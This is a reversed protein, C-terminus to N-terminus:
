KKEGESALAYLSETTGAKVLVRRDPLAFLPVPATSPSAVSEGKPSLRVTQQEETGWWYGAGLRGSGSPTGVATHAATDILVRNVLVLGSAGDVVASNAALSDATFTKVLSAKGLAPFAPFVALVSKRVASASRKSPEPTAWVTVLSGDAAPYVASLKAAGKPAPLTVPAPFTVSDDTIYWLRGTSIEVALLVGRDTGVAVAGAPIRRLELRGQTLVMARQDPLAFFPERGTDTATRVTTSGAEYVAGPVGDLGFVKIKSGDTVVIRQEGDVAMVRLASVSGELATSWVRAGTRADLADLHGGSVTIVQNGDPSLVPTTRAAPVTWSAFTGWGAPAYVPLQGAPAPAAVQVGQSAPAFWGARQAGLVGGTVAVSFVVFVATMTRKGKRTKAWARGKSIREGAGSVAGVAPVLVRAFRSRGARSHLGDLVEHARGPAQAPAVPATALTLTGHGADVILSQATDGHIGEVRARAMQLSLCAKVAARRSTEFPDEGPIPLVRRLDLSADSDSVLLVEGEWRLTIIPWAPVAVDSM